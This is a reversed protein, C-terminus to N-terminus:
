RASQWRRASPARSSIGPSRSRAASASVRPISRTSSRPSASGSTAARRRSRPSPRRTAAAPARSSTRWPSTRTRPRPPETPMTRGFYRALTARNSIYAEWCGNAGCSCPPGDLSLPVHGFEGAINHRGRLVEGNMMVGVGIGDSVSIFVLEGHSANMAGRWAWMQALVCARGSNEIQVRLGTAASLPERLDVDRWGLTPARLVRMTGHEVM